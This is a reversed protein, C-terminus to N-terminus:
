CFYFISLFLKREIFPVSMQGYALMPVSRQRHRVLIKKRIAVIATSCAEPAKQQGPTLCRPKKQRGEKVRVPMKESSLLGILLSFTV